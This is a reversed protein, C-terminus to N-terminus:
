CTKEGDPADCPVAATGIDGKVTRVPAWNADLMPTLFGSERSTEAMMVKDCLSDALSRQREKGRSLLGLREPYATSCFLGHCDPRYRVGMHVHMPLSSGFPGECDGTPTPDPHLPFPSWVRACGVASMAGAKKEADQGRRRRTLWRGVGSHPCMRSGLSPRPRAWQVAM